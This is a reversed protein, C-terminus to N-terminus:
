IENFSEVGYVLLSFTEDCLIVHKFKKVFENDVGLEIYFINAVNIASKINL